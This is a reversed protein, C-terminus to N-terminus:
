LNLKLDCLYFAWQQGGGEMGLNLATHRLGYNVNLYHQPSTKTM